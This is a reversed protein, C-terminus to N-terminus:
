PEPPPPPPPDDREERNGRSRKELREKMEERAQDMTARQEETLIARFKEMHQRRLDMFPQMLAHREQRLEKLQAKDEAERAARGKDDLAKIEDHKDKFWADREQDFAAEIEKLQTTQAPSLKLKEVLRPPVLPHSRPRHGPKGGGEGAQGTVALTLATIIIVALPKIM